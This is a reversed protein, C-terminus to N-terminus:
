IKNRISNKLDNLSHQTNRPLAQYAWKLGLRAARQIMGRYYVRNVITESWRDFHSTDTSRGYQIGTTVNKTVFHGRKMSSVIFDTTLSEAPADLSIVNSVSLRVDHLDCGFLYHYRDRWPQRRLWKVFKLPPMYYGDAQQNWLEIGDIRYRELHASILDSRYKTPHALVKVLHEGPDQGAAAFDAATGFDWVPFLITDIGSLNVEVGPVLVFGNRSNLNQIENVYQNFKSADFDEFHETLICFRFGRTRLSTAVEALTSRGDHSYTSHFHFTGNVM